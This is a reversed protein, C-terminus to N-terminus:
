DARTVWPQTCPALEMAQCNYTFRLNDFYQERDIAVGNLTPVSKMTRINSIIREVVLKNARTLELPDLDGYCLHRYLSDTTFMEDTMNTRFGRRSLEDRIDNFRNHLFKLKNYFYTVHGTGLSFAQPIKRTLIKEGMKTVANPVRVIERYEALLHQDILLEPKINANIRTM